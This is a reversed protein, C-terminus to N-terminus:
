DKEWFSKLFHCSKLSRNSSSYSISFVKTPMVPTKLYRSFQSKFYPNSKNQTARSTLILVRLPIFNDLPLTSEVYELVKWPNISDGYPLKGEPIPLAGDFLALAPIFLDM